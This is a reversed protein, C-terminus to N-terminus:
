VDHHALVGVADGEGDLAVAVDFRAVVAREIRRLELAEDVVRAEADHVHDALDVVFSAGRKDVIASQSKKQPPPSRPPAGGIPMRRRSRSHALRMRCACVGVCLM